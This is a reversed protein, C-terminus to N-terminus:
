VDLSGSNEIWDKEEGGLPRTRLAQTPSLITFSIGEALLCELTEDDVATEPLWMGEPKRGFRAEFDTIGWRIQTLKDRRSALPLIIHNYGQAMANGHGSRRNRSKSDPAVIQAYADQHLAEM